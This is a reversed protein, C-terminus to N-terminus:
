FFICFTLVGAIAVCGGNVHLFEATTPIIEGEATRSERRERQRQGRVPLRYRDPGLNSRWCARCLEQVWCIFGDHRM